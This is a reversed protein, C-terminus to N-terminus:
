KIKILKKSKKNEKYIFKILKSKKFKFNLNNVSKKWNHIIEKLSISNLNYKKM